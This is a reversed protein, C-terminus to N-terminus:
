KCFWEERNKMSQSNGCGMRLMKNTNFKIDTDEFHFEKGSFNLLRRNTLLLNM